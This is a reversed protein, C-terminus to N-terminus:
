CSKLKPNNAKNIKENFHSIQKSNKVICERYNAAHDGNYLAYKVDNNRGTWSCEETAQNETCKVDPDSAPQLIEKHHWM